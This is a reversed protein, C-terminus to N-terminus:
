VEPPEDVAFRWRTAATMRRCSEGEDKGFVRFRAMAVAAYGMDRLPRPVWILVAHFVPWLGSCRSLVRLAATSRVHVGAEDVLVITSVDHPLGARRLYARGVDSQLTAFRFRDSTDRDIVFQVFTSCLLCVGDFLVLASGEPMKVSSSALLLTRSIWASTADAARWLLTGVPREDSQAVKTWEILRKTVAALMGSIAIGNFVLIGSAEGLSVCYIRPANAAGVVGQPYTALPEGRAHRRVNAAALHASLEATHGLGSHTCSASKKAQVMLDGTAYVNAVNAVQLHENVVVRGAGDFEAGLLPRLPESNPTGGVCRYVVDAHLTRGDCLTCSTEDAVVVAAHLVLKVGHGELWRRAIQGVCPPLSSCLTGGSTVLSVRTEPCVSAIEAALEVGVPGGGIILVSQAAALVTATTDWQRQRAALDAAGAGTIPSCPYSMGSALILYDFKLNLIKSGDVPQVTVGNMTVHRLEALLLRNRQRPLPGSIHRLRSPQTYLRLVGPTYEHYDKRDILTVDFDDSLDRQASLGAFSGGVIVVSPRRLHNGSPSAGARSCCVRTALSVVCDFAKLLAIAIQCATRVLVLRFPAVHRAPEHVRRQDDTEIGLAPTVVEKSAVAALQQRRFVEGGTCWIRAYMWMLTTMGLVGTTVFSVEPSPTAFMSMEPIPWYTDMKKNSAVLGANHKIDSHIQIGLWATIVGTAVLGRVRDAPSPPALGMQSRKEELLAHTTRCRFVALPNTSMFVLMSHRVFNPGLQLFVLFHFSIALAVIGLRSLTEAWSFPASLLVCLPVVVELLLNGWSMLMIGGPVHLILENFTPITARLFMSSSGLVKDELLWSGSLQRDLGIYRIKSMGSCLYVPAIVCLVLFQRLWVAARPNQALDPVALTSAMVFLVSSQTSHALNYMLGLSGLCVYGAAGTIYCARMVCPWRPPLVLFIGWAVFLVSRVRALWAAHRDATTDDLDPMAWHTLPLVIGPLLEKPLVPHHRVRAILEPTSLMNLEPAGLGFLDVSLLLLVVLKISALPYAFAHGRSWFTALRNLVTLRWPGYPTTPASASVRCGFAVAIVIGIAVCAWMVTLVPGVRDQMTAAAHVAVLFREETHYQCLSCAAPAARCAALRRTSQEWATVTAAPLQRCARLRSATRKRGKALPGSWTESYWGGMWAKVRTQLADSDYVGSYLQQVYAQAVSSGTPAHRRGRHTTTDGPQSPMLGGHTTTANKQSVGGRRSLKGRRLMPARQAGAPHMWSFIANLYEQLQVDHGRRMKRPPVAIASIHERKDQRHSCVGKARRLLLVINTRGAPAQRGRFLVVDALHEKCLSHHDLIFGDEISTQPAVVRSGYTLTANSTQSAQLLVAGGPRLMRIIAMIFPAFKTRPTPLDKMIDNAYIFDFTAKQFPM